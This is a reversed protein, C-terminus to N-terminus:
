RQTRVRKSKPANRTNEGSRRKSVVIENSAAFASNEDSKYERLLTSCADTVDDTDDLKGSVSNEKNCDDLDDMYYTMEEAPIHKVIVDASPTASLEENFFIVNRQAVHPTEEEAKIIKHAFGQVSESGVSADNSCASLKKLVTEEHGESAQILVEGHRDIERKQDSISQAFRAASSHVQNKISDSSDCQNNCLVRLTQEGANVHAHVQDINAKMRSSLDESPAEISSDICTMTSDIVQTKVFDFAGKACQTLHSAREQTGELVCKALQAVCKQGGEEMVQKMEEVAVNDHNENAEMATAAAEAFTTSKVEKENSSHQSDAVISQTTALLGSVKIENERVVDSHGQLVSNTSGVTDFLRKASEYVGANSEVLEKNGSVFMEHNEGHQKVLSSMENKLLEQVGSMVNSMILQCVENNRECSLDFAKNQSSLLSGQKQLDGLHAANKEQLHSRQESLHKAIEDHRHMEGSLMELMAEIETNLNNSAAKINNSFDISSSKWDAVISQLAQRSNSRENKATALASNVSSVMKSLNEKSELVNSTLTEVMEATSEVYVAEIEKLHSASSALQERIAKCSSRISQEGHMVMGDLATVGDRVNSSTTMISPMIGDGQMMQDKLSSVAITVHESIEVIARKHQELVTTQRSCHSTTSETVSTRYENEVSTLSALSDLIDDFVAVVASNFTSTAEKRKVDDERHNLLVHHMSNGDEISQRLVTLLEQAERTLCAETRQTAKLITTTEKLTKETQSLQHYIADKEAIHRQNDEALSDNERRAEEYRAIAEVRSAEAREATEVLESQQLHKRALAQQAEEVQSQMYQLRCEMEHWHEVAGVMGDTTASVPQNENSSSTTGVHTMFSTTIPKNKICIAAQAYNLTSMSEEIASVSPSVTAILCTKCRGGLSEQLIRTLKSDSHM